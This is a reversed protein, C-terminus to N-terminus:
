LSNRHDIIQEICTRGSIFEAGYTATEPTSQKKCYWDIPTKNYFHLVGTVAKGSLVYHMLNADFYYPLTIWKGLPPPDNKPLEESPNSYATNAWDFM